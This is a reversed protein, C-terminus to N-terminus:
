ADDGSLFLNGHADERWRVAPRGAADAAIRRNYREALPRAPADDAPRPMLERAIAILECAKPLFPRATAWRHIAAELLVPPM